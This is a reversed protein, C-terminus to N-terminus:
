CKGPAPCLQRYSDLNTSSNNRSLTSYLVALPRTTTQGLGKSGTLRAQATELKSLNNEAVVSYVRVGMAFGTVQPNTPDSGAFEAGPVRTRFTQLLFDTKCDGDTDVPIYTTPNPSVSVKASPDPKDGNCRADGLTRVTGISQTPRGIEPRGAAGTPAIPPLNAASSLNQEMLTRNRDIESQALALAQEARRNQVRTATAWFIPPTIAVLTISVVV